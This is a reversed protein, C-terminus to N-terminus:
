RGTMGQTGGAARHCCGRCAGVLWKVLERSQFARGEWGDPHGQKDSQCIQCARHTHTHSPLALFLFYFVCLISCFPPSLFFFFGAGFKAEGTAVQDKGRAPARWLAVVQWLLGSRGFRFAYSDSDTTNKKRRKSRRSWQKGCWVQQSLIPCSGCM